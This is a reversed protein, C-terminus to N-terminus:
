AEVGEATYARGPLFRRSETEIGVHLTDYTADVPDGLDLGGHQDSAYVVPNNTTDFLTEELSELEVDTLERETVFTITTTYRFM